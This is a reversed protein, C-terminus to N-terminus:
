KTHTGNSTGTSHTKKLNLQKNALATVFFLRRYSDWSRTTRLILNRKAERHQPQYQQICHDLIKEFLHGALLPALQELTKTLAHITNLSNSFRQQLSLIVTHLHDPLESPSEAIALALDTLQAQTFPQTLSGGPPNEDVSGPPRSGLVHDRHSRCLDKGRMAWNRCGTIICRKKNPNRPM